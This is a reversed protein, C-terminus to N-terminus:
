TRTIQDLHDSWRQLADRMPEIYKARQYVGAVGARHGSVHNLIAEVVHPLVGLEGMGTAATRRLDHIHWDAIHLRKDLRIKASDWDKYGQVDSFLFPSSNRRPQRQLIALAQRSLPLEHKRKNKTREPGLVIMGKALDVESWALAGIENRRQGTLLLLRVLDAFRGDGLAHWLAVLEDRTLVRERSGGENVKATGQVPNTECLGETIAWGFFASLASRARNRAVPGRAQEIQGLLVAIARRDIDTLRLKALPASHNTLFRRVEEFSRPKLSAKKRLLYREIEAGFSESNLSQAFPDNGGVVSGLLRLAENRAADPTWPSGHRGISRMVQAGDRRYRLYYFIGRTQRRAGFGIVRDDWLWGELGRLSGLTIRGTAM